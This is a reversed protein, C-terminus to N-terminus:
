QRTDKQVNNNFFMSRIGGGEGGAGRGGENKKDISTEGQFSHVVVFYKGTQVHKAHLIVRQTAWSAAM